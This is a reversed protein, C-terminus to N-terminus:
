VIEFYTEACLSSFTENKKNKQINIFIKTHIFMNIYYLFCYKINHSIFHLFIYEYLSHSSQLM